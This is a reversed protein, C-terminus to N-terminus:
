THINDDPIGDNLIRDWVELRHVTVEGGVDFGLRVRGHSIDLVTIKMLGESSNKSVVVVSEQQKRSLVLM